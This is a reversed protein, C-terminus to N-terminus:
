VMKLAEVGRNVKPFELILLHGHIRLIQDMLIIIAKGTKKLYLRQDETKQLIVQLQIFRINQKTIIIVEGIGKCDYKGVM